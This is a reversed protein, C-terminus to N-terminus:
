IDCVLAAEYLFLITKIYVSALCSVEMNTAYHEAFLPERLMISGRKM